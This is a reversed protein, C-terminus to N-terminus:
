KFELYASDLQRIWAARTIVEEVGGERQGCRGECVGKDRRGHTPYVRLRKPKHTVIHSRLLGQALPPVKFIFERWPLAARDSGRLQAKVRWVRFSM